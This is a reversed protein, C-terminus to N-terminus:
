NQLLKVILLLKELPFISFSMAKLKMFAFWDGVFGISHLAIFVCHTCLFRLDGREQVPPRLILDAAVLSSFFRWTLSTSPLPQHDPHDPGLSDHFSLDLELCLHTM